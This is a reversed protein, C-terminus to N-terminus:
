LPFFAASIVVLVPLMVAGAFLMFPVFGPMRVGLHSAVGRLMLNPANGIYTLGGFMVAGASIARLVLTQAVTMTEPRIGMLDFFVLYSPTNDLFASLVGALWFCVAPRVEGAPDLTLRLEQAFPGDMGLRLLDSVPELTIFIGVFLVAVETMPHWSFDNARRVARPTIWWSLGGAAVAFPVTTMPITVSGALVSVLVVNGWGRVSFPGVPPPPPEKRALWWDTLFFAVLLMGAAAFWIAALDRAPWLFPVGRLFGALLPPNGIPTLLGATNGVLLILFLVLHFRRKRHANARLLPHIIVMAAGTTGMVLALVLGLGLMVTNGWPRGAPGGRLLIGGAIVYLGGLVSVFPLYSAVMAHAAEHAWSSFGLFPILALSWGAAVRGMHRLWFRPAFGPLMAISLLLGAFPLIVWATHGSSQM